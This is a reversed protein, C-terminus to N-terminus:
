GLFQSSHLCKGDFPINFYCIFMQPWKQNSKQDKPHWLEKLHQIKSCIITHAQNWNRSNIHDSGTTTGCTGLGHSPISGFSFACINQGDAMSFAIKSVAKVLLDPLVACIFVALKWHSCWYSQKPKFHCHKGPYSVKRKLYCWKPRSKQQFFSATGLIQVMHSDSQSKPKRHVWPATAWMHDWMFVSSCCPAAIGHVRVLAWHTWM